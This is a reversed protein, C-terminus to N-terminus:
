VRDGPIARLQICTVDNNCFMECSGISTSRL